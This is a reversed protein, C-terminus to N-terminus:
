VRRMATVNISFRDRLKAVLREVQGPHDIMIGTASITAGGIAFNRSRRTLLVFHLFDGLRFEFLSQSPGSSL